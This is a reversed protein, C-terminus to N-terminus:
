PVTVKLAKEGKEVKAGKLKATVGETAIVVFDGEQTVKPEDPLGTIQIERVGNFLPHEGAAQTLAERGLVELTSDENGLKVFRRHLIAGKAVLSVNLPDFGQPMFPKATAIELRWGSRGLFAKRSERRTQALRLVDTKANESAAAIEEPKLGCAAAPKGAVARALMEDLSTANGAELTQRWSPDFRDLLAAQAFGISYARSRVDGAAYEAAPLDPGQTMGLSLKEVFNALGENLETGREYSVAGAPLKSFRDRREDLARSTWCAAEKLEKAALARRFAETELRRVALPGADEMPYLFLEAENGSWKPHRERQFVHFSEHIVISAWHRADWTLKPDIELTATQVGGLEISTNAKVSPHRGAFVWADGEKKFEPPPSPHRILITREGDYIALPTKGPAFNPWLPQVALRDFEALISAAAPKPPAAHLPPLSALGFLLALLLIRSPRKM